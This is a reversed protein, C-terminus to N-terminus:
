IKVSQALRDKNQYSSAAGFHLVCINKKKKSISFPCYSSINIAQFRIFWGQTPERAFMQFTWCLALKAPLQLTKHPATSLSSFISKKKRLVKSLQAFDCAPM